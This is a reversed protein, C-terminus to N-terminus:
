RPFSSWSSALHTGLPFKLLTGFDTDGTVLIAQHQQAAEFIRAGPCGRLNLDRGHESAHGRERLMSALLHPLDEDILFHPM